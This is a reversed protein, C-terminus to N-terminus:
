GEGKGGFAEGLIHAGYDCAPNKEGFPGQAQVVFRKPSVEVTAEYLIALDVEPPKISHEVHFLYCLGKAAKSAYTHVCHHMREREDYCDGATRLLWIGKQALGTLDVGTPEVLPTDRPLMDSDVADLRQHWEQSLRALGLLDGHYENPYDLIQTAVEGILRTKSTTKLQVGQLAAAEKIMDPTAAVVTQEHLGWNHHDSACLVFVLHLRNTIPAVLQITSLRLIQKYSVAVPVKDLTKNLAKNPITPTLRERWAAVLALHQDHDTRAVNVNELAARAYMRCAHYKKLDSRLHQWREEYLEPWHLMDADGQTSAWMLRSLHEVEPPAIQKAIRQWGKYARGMLAKSIMGAAEEVDDDDGRIILQHAFSLAAHWLAERFRYLGFKNHGVLLWGVECYRVAIHLGNVRWIEFGDLLEEFAYKGSGFEIIKDLPKCQSAEYLPERDFGVVAVPQQGEALQLRREFLQGKRLLGEPQQGWDYHPMGACNPTRPKGQWTKTCITCRYGRPATKELQHDLNM